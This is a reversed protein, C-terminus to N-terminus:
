DVCPNSRLSVKTVVLLSSISESVGHTEDPHELSELRIISCSRLARFSLLLSDVGVALQVIRHKTDGRGEIGKDSAIYVM